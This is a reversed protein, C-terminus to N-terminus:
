LISPTTLSLFSVFSKSMYEFFVLVVCCLFPLVFLDIDKSQEVVKVDRDLSISISDCAEPMERPPQLVFVESSPSFSRPLLLAEDEDWGQHSVFDKCRFLFM